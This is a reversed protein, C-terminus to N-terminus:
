SAIRAFPNTHFEKDACNESWTKHTYCTERDDPHMGRDEAKDDAVLQKRLKSDKIDTYRDETSM